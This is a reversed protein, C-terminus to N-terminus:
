KHVLQTPSQNDVNRSHGMYSQRKDIDFDGYDIQTRVEGALTSTEALFCVQVITGSNDVMLEKRAPFGIKGDGAQTQRPGGEFKLKLEKALVDGPKVVIPEFETQFHNSEATVCDAKVPERKQTVVMQLGRFLISKTGSNLLTFKVPGEVSLRTADVVRVQPIANLLISAAEEPKKNWFNSLKTLITDLNSLLLAVAAVAAVTWAVVSKVRAGATSLWSKKKEEEDAM